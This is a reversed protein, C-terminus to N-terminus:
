VEGGLKFGLEAVLAALPQEGAFIFHDQEAVGHHDGVEGQRM